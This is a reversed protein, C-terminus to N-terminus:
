PEEWKADTIEGSKFWYALRRATVSKPHSDKSTQQSITVVSDENSYLIVCGRAKDVTIRGATGWITGWVGTAEMSMGDRTNRILIVGQPIYVKTAVLVMKGSPKEPPSASISPSFLSLALLAM